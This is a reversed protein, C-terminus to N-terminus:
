LIDLHTHSAGLNSCLVAATRERRHKCRLSRLFRKTREGPLRLSTIGISYTVKSCSISNECTIMAPIPVTMATRAYMFLFFYGGREEVTLRSNRKVPPLSGNGTVVERHKNYVVKKINDIM